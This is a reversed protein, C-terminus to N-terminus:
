FKIKDRECYYRAGSNICSAMHYRGKYIATYTTDGNTNIIRRAPLGDGYVAKYVLNTKNCKPCIVQGLLNRKIICPVAVVEVKQKVNLRKLSSLFLTDLGVGTYYLEINKLVATDRALEFDGHQDVHIKYIVKGNQKCVIQLGEIMVTSKEQKVLHIKLAPLSFATLAVLAM